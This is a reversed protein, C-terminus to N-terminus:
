NEICKEGAAGGARASNLAFSSCVSLGRLFTFSSVGSFCFWTITRHPVSELLGPRVLLSCRMELSDLPRKQTYTEQQRKFPKNKQLLAAVASSM